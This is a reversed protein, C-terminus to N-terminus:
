SHEGSRLWKTAQCSTQQALHVGPYPAQVSSLCLYSM